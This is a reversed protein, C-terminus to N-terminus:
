LKNEAKNLQLTLDKLYESSHGKCFTIKCATNVKDYPYKYPILLGSEQLCDSGEKSLWPNPEFGLALM